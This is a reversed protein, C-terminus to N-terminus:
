RLSSLSTLAFTSLVAISRGNWCFTEIQLLYVTKLRGFTVSRSKETGRGVKTEIQLMYVPKQGNSTVSRSIRWGRRWVDLDTVTVLGFPGKNNCISVFETPVVVGADAAGRLVWVM